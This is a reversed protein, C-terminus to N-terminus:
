DQAAEWCLWGLIPTTLCSLILPFLQWRYLAIAFCWSSILFFILFIGWMPRLPNSRTKLPTNM